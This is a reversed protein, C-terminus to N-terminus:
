WLNAGGTDTRILELKAERKGNLWRVILTVSKVDTAKQVVEIDTTYPELPELVATDSLFTPGSSLSGYAVHRQMEAENSLAQYARILDNAQKLRKNRELFVVLSMLIVLTVVAMAFMVEILSFGAARKGSPMASANYPPGLRVSRPYWM